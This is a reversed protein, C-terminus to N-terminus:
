VLTIFVVQLCQSEQGLKEASLVLCSFVGCLLFGESLMFSRYADQKFDVLAWRVSSTEKERGELLFFRHGLSESMSYIDVPRSRLSM